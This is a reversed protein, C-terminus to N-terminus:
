PKIAEEYMWDDRYVLQENELHYYRRYLKLTDFKFRNAPEDKLITKILEKGVSSLHISDERGDGYQYHHYDSYSYFTHAIFGANKKIWHTLTKQYYVEEGRENKLYFVYSWNPFSNYMPFSSFPHFEKGILLSAAIYLILLLYSKM